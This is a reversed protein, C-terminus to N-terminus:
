VNPSQNKFYSSFGPSAQDNGGLRYGTGSFPQPESRMPAINNIRGVPESVQVPRLGPLESGSERVSVFGRIM